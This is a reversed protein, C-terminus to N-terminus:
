CERTHPRRGCRTGADAPNAYGNVPQRSWADRQCRCASTRRAVPPACIHQAARTSEPRSRSLRERAALCAAACSSPASSRAPRRTSAPVASRTVSMSCSPPAHCCRDVFPVIVCQPLPDPNKSKRPSPGQPRASVLRSASGNSTQQIVAHASISPSRPTCTRRCRASRSFGIIQSCRRSASVREKPHRCSHDRETSVSVEHGIRRHM